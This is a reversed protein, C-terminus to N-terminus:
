THRRVISLCEAKRYKRLGSRFRRDRGQNRGTGLSLKRDMRVVRLVVPHPRFFRSDAQARECSQRHSNSTGACALVKIRGGDGKPGRYDFRVTYRKPGM